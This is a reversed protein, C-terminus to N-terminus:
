TAAFNPLGSVQLTVTLGMKDELPTDPEFGRVIAKFRWKKAPSVPWVIQWNRKTRDKWLKLVGSSAGQTANNPLHACQVTVEGPQIMGAIYEMTAEPSEMHGANVIATEMGPGAIDVVEALTTWVEPSAGDGFQLLTGYGIKAETEAM